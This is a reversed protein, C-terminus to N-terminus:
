RGYNNLAFGALRIGSEGFSCVMEQLRRTSSIDKRAVMMASGAAAAIMRADTAQLHAPTDILIVDYNIRLRELLAAFEPQGVLAAPNDQPPGAPVIHLNDMGPVAFTVLGDESGSLLPGLGGKSAIRFHLHQVPNYLDADILLTRRGFEACMFALNSAIFSRGDGKNLSTIALTRFGEERNFCQLILTACLERLQRTAESRPDSIGIVGSVVDTPGDQMLGPALEPMNEDALPKQRHRLECVSQGYQREPEDRSRRPNILRRIDTDDNMNNVM